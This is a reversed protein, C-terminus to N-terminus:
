NELYKDLIDERKLFLKTSEMLDNFRLISLVQIVKSWTVDSCESEVWKMLVTELKSAATSMTGENKLIQRQNYSVGLERGIDDWHASIDNNLLNFVDNPDPAQSYIM